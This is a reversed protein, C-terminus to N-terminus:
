EVEQYKNFILSSKGGHELDVACAYLSVKNDENLSEWVLAAYEELSGSIPVARPEGLFSPLPSGYIPLACTQVGTVFRFRTHGDEAQFRFLM